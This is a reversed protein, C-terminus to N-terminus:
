NILYNLTFDGWGWGMKHTNLVQVLMKSSKMGAM